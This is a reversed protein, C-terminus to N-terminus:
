HTETRPTDSKITNSKQTHKNKKELFLGADPNANLSPLEATQRESRGPVDATVVEGNKVGDGQARHHLQYAGSGPQQCHRLRCAPWGSYFGNRRHLAAGASLHNGQDATRRGLDSSCVDSSWDSIRM